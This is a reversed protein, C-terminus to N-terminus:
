MLATQLLHTVLKDGLAGEFHVIPFSFLCAVCWWSTASVVGSWDRRLVSMMCTHRMGALLGSQVGRQSSMRAQVHEPMGKLKPLGDSRSANCQM